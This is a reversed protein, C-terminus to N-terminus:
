KTIRLLVLDILVFILLPVIASLFPPIQYLLSFPGLFENFTYFGFGIMVGILIRFGMPKTRLPGFIFPIALGIMVLAALPRLIRKWFEFEYPAAYLGSRNLYNMYRKLESLSTKEHNINAIGVFDPDLFIPWTQTVFHQLKINDQLFVSETVDSFIWQGQQYNGEKALSATVLKTGDFQYRLVSILKGNPSVQEIYIFNGGDRVWLGQRDQAVIDGMEARIKYRDAWQQLKPGLGEGFATVVILMLINARIVSLIIQAKSVGSAQMVILESQSALKGLGILCGMVAAAPFLPYVLNPLSFLIFVLAQKIGYEHHGIDNLESLFAIFMQLGAIILVVLATMSIVTKLIHNHLIKMFRQLSLEHVARM